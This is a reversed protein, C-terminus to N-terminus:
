LLCKLGTLRLRYQHFCVSPLFLCCACLEGHGGGQAAGGRGPLMESCRGGAFMESRRVLSGAILLCYRGWAAGDSLGERGLAKCSGEALFLFVTGEVVRKYPM